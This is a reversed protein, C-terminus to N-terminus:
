PALDARLHLGAVALGPQMHLDVRAVTTFGAAGFFGEAGVLAHAHLTAIGSAKADALVRDLV